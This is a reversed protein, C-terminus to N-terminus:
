KDAHEHNTKKKPLPWKNNKYNSFLLINPWSKLSKCHSVMLYFTEIDHSCLPCQQRDRDDMGVGDNKLRYYSHNSNIESRWSPGM